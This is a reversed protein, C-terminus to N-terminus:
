RGWGRVPGSDLHVFQARSYKGVGGASLSRGAGSIQAVSRSKLAVDVAMGLCHYSKRAVARSRSRLMANTEKTRFGSVIEFPENVDLLKQTASLIDLIRVDMETPQDARWDRLIHNIPELAEPIYEGDIWYVTSVREATRDNFLSLSRYEGLGRNVSPLAIQPVTVMGAFAAM